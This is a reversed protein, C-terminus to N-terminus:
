GHNGRGFTFVQGNECLAISHYCGCAIKSINVRKSLYTVTDVFM